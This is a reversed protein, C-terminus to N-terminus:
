WVLFIGLYRSAGYNSVVCFILISVTTLDYPIFNPITKKEGIEALCMVSLGWYDKVLKALVKWTHLWITYSNNM